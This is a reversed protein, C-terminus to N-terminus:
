YRDAQCYQKELRPRPMMPISDSIPCVTWRFATRLRGALKWRHPPTTAAPLHRWNAGAAARRGPEIAEAAWCCCTTGAESPSDQKQENSVPENKETASEHMPTEKEVEIDTMKKIAAISLLLCVLLVFILFISSADCNYIFLVLLTLVILAIGGCTLKHDDM